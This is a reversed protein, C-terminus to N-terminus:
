SSKMKKTPPEDGSTFLSAVYPSFLRKTLTLSVLLSINQLSSKLAKMSPSDNDQVSNLIEDVDKAALIRSVINSGSDNLITIKDKQLSTSFVEIYKQIDPPTFKKAETLLVEFFTFVYNALNKDSSNKGLVSDIILGIKFKKYLVNDNVGDIDELKSFCSQLYACSGTNYLYKIIDKKLSDATTVPPLPPLPPLSPLPPPPPSSVMSSPPQQQQEQPIIRPEERPESNMWNLDAFVDLTEPNPTFSGLNAFDEANLFSPPNNFVSNM